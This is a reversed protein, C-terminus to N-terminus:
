TAQAGGSSASGRRARERKHRDKMAYMLRDAKSFQKAGGDSTRQIGYSIDLDTTGYLERFRSRARKMIQEANGTDVHELLVIFEDGGYRVVLDGSRTSDILTEAFLCLVKDGAAHGHEDNYEKFNDLDTVVAVDYAEIEIADLLHRNYSGTLADRNYTKELAESKEFAHSFRRALILSHFLLFAWLGFGLLYVSDIVGVGTLADNIAVAFLFTFGGAVLRSESRSKRVARLVVFLAYFIAALLFPIYYELVSEPVALNAAILYVTSVAFIGIAARQDLDQPFLRYLYLVFLGILPYIGVTQLHNFAEVTLEPFLTLAVMEGSILARRYAVLLMFLGFYLSVRDVRRFSFLFLHYLGMLALSGIIASDVAFRLFKRHEILQKPGFLPPKTMGSRIPYAHNSVNLIIELDQESAVSFYATRLPIYSAERRASEAPRGVQEVLRGNIYLRYASYVSSFDIGFVPPVTLPIESSPIVLRYTAHGYTPYGM